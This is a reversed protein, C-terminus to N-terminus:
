GKIGPLMWVLAQFACLICQNIIRPIPNAVDALEKDVRKGM